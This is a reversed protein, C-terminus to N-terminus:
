VGVSLLLVFDLDLEPLLESSEFFLFFFTLFCFLFGASKGLILVDSTTTGLFTGTLILLGELAFGRIL